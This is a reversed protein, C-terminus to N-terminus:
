NCVKRNVNTDSWKGSAQCTAFPGGVLEYGSDCHVPVIEGYYFKSRATFNAQSNEIVQDTGCETFNIRYSFSLVM